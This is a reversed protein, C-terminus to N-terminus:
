CHLQGVNLTIPRTVKIAIGAAPETSVIKGRNHDGPQIQKCGQIVNQFGLNSLDSQATAFDNGVESPMKILSQDSPYLTIEYNPSLIAGAAPNMKAVSGAPYSSPIAAAVAVKFGLAELVSTAEEITDGVVNQLQKGNGAMLTPDPAAFTAKGPYVKDISRMINSWLAHRLVAAQMGSITIARTPVKGRYNGVWVATAIKSSGGVTWTQLSDNTTGTKGFVATGDHPNSAGGTGATSLPGELAFRAADAIAKPVAQNCVRPQGAITKGTPGVLKDIATPECFLGHDGIGAYAAAMTLPSVNNTGLVSSPNTAPENSISGDAHKFQSATHVGLSEAVKKIDCLDLQQAMSIFAGNVSRATATMVTRPGSENEDNHFPYPGYFPADPCTDTFSAQDVTRANGNVVENLGHGNELWDILTFAKYTSGGQFGGSGGYPYDTAYNVATSTNGGGKASDNFNKNVAMTIIRGTGMEVSTTAGGIKIIPSHKPVYNWILAQARTQLGLDLSTYVDYGGRQWAIKRQDVTAGLSTLTPVLKTVYDCFWKSYKEAAICGNKPTNLHVTKANVPIALAHDLQAQTIDGAKHMASLIVNRRDTNQTYGSANIPARAGPKQVIAVLSAAQEISLNKASIGYYREAAAQIGYTNGGFNSINLYALLIEKKTYRKELSIALKMEKLKRDLTVAQAAQVGDAIKKAQIKPDPDTLQLAQQILINKVLQQAITSAGQRSGSHSLAVVVARAVGTPDVGGHEYFRRDEGDVAADKAWDSVEDWTVEERNQDFVTAIQVKKKGDNAFIRNQQPLTGIEIYTPLNNFIGIGSQAVVSSVAVAPTVMATVLIGAIASFALTGLLAALVGRRPPNQASM